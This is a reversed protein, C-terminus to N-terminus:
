LVVSLWVGGESMEERKVLLKEGLQPAARSCIQLNWELPWHRSSWCELVLSRGKFVVVEHSIQLPFVEMTNPPVHEELPYM